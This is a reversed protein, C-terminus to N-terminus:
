SSEIQKTHSKFVLNKNLIFGLIACPFLALFGATYLDFSWFKFLSVLSMNLFYMALYVSIFKFVLQNNTNKFVLKGTTKFNFFIGLVTAYFLALPYSLGMYIFSAYCGYSFFTNLMGVFLYRILQQKTTM